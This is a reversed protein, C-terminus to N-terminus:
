LGGAGSSAPPLTLSSVGALGPSHLLGPGVAEPTVSGAPLDDGAAGASSIEDAMVDAMTRHSLWPYTRLQHETFLGGSMGGASAACGGRGAPARLASVCAGRGAAIARKHIVTVRGREALAQVARYIGSKSKLGLAAAIEAYSPTVGPSAELIALVQAQRKTLGGSM